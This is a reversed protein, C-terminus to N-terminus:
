DRAANKEGEFLSEGGCMSLPSWRLLVDFHRPRDHNGEFRRHRERRSFDIVQLHEGQSSYFDTRLGYCSCGGDPTAPIESDTPNSDGDSALVVRSGSFLGM